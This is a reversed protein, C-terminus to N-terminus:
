VFLLLLLLIGLLIFLLLLINLFTNKITEYKLNVHKGINGIVKLCFM